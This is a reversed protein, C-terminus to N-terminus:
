GAAVADIQLLWPGAPEGTVIVTLAPHHPDLVEDRIHASEERHRRDALLVTVKVLHGTTMGAATLAALVNAWVLRAQTTFDAPVAADTEPMQGGIYLLRSPGSVLAARAYSRPQPDIPIIEV